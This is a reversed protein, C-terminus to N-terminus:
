FLHGDSDAGPWFEMQNGLARFQEGLDGAQQVTDRRCGRSGPRSLRRSSLGAAASRRSLAPRARNRHPSTRSIATAADTGIWTAVTRIASTDPAVPFRGVSGACSQSQRQQSRRRHLLSTANWPCRGRDQENNGTAATSAHGVDHAKHRRGRLREECCKMVRASWCTPRLPAVDTLSARAPM